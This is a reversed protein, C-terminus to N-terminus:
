KRKLIASFNNGLRNISSEFDAGIDEKFKNIIDGAKDKFIMERGRLVIFIRVKDGRDLFEKARKEKFQLDHKDIKISLKIEKLGTSKAKAKQKQIQKSKEYLYKGFDMIKCVSPNANPNIEVLDMEKDYALFLAQDLSTKGYIKGDSGILFM